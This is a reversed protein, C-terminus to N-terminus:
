RSKGYPRNTLNIKVNTGQMDSLPHCEGGLERKRVGVKEMRAILSISKSMQAKCISSHTCSIRDFSCPFPSPLMNCM